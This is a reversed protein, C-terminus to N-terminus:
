PPPGNPEASSQDLLIRLKLLVVPVDDGFLHQGIKESQDLGFLLDLQSPVNHEDHPVDDHRLLEAFPKDLLYGFIVLMGPDLQDTLCGVQISVNKRDDSIVGFHGM